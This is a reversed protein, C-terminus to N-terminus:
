SADGNDPGLIGPYVQRAFAVLRLFVDPELAVQHMVTQQRLNDWRQTEVWLLGAENRAYAGDGLYVGDIGSM